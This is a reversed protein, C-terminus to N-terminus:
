IEIKKYLVKKYKELVKKSSESHNLMPKPYNINSYLKYYEDWKHIHENPVNKLEPIWKKIYVCDYDHEKQQIFPSFVRFYPMTDAGSGSVWSWNGNNVLWDIDILKSSFYKEGEFPSWFMDKILFSAAILRGRNEMYGITNIQRM